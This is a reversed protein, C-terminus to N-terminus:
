RLADMLIDRYSSAARAWSFKEGHRRIAGTDRRAALQEELAAALTGPDGPECMRGLMEDDVVEPIGGVRSAVVPLGSAFAELIINPVGENQSPVALVDACNMLRAIEEPEKRGALVVRSELGLQEVLERCPGELPGGGAMVLMPEDAMKEVARILVMPNKVTYFNGVFLIVKGGEPLGAERRAAAQDRAQFTELSVGNYVTHLKEGPFGAGELIRALEGSRTIVAAAQPLYKLIVRRRSPIEIYQHVDSGQAIAVVPVRERVVHIAACCDPYIWAGLVVEPEFTRLMEEMENRMSAAMLLHNVPSGIKPLYASPVWHPQMAADEERGAFPTRSWPLVPRPSLVRVEFSGALERLLTANDLGRYPEEATPFLNSIFLLRPSV